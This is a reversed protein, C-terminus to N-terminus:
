LTVKLVAMADADIEQCDLRAIGRVETSNSRWAKGGVTTSAFEFANRQFLTCYERGYGIAIRCKSPGSLNPLHADSLVVVQRGKVRLLTANSPDPQLLPRGTGDVLSDMLDLGTQNTFVGALASFAPDLTTNLATKIAGLLKTKDTVATGTLANILTLILSNHTLIVKRAFWRALYAMINVPTDQLLSNSVPLFDFYEDLTYDVQNFTPSEGEGTKETMETHKTLPLAAAFAEVARWGSLTNVNEVNVFDALDVYERMLEHIKGDFEVPVLYGGEDGTPTGGTETLANILLGYRQEGGMQAVNKPTVGNKLADKWQAAYEKSGRMDHVEKPEVPASGAPVFRKNPAEGNNVAGMELYLQNAANYETRAKVLEPQLKQAEEIKNEDFLNTIRLAVEKVKANAAIVADYFKKLDM